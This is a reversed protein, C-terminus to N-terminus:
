KDFITLFDSLRSTPFDSLFLKNENMLLNCFSMPHVTTKSSSFLTEIAEKSFSSEDAM